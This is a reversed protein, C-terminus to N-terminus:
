CALLVWFTASTEIAAEREPTEQCHQETVGPSQNYEASTFVIFFRDTLRRELIAVHLTGTATATYTPDISQLV